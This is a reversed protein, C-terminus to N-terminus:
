EDLDGFEVQGRIFEQRIALLEQEAVKLASRGIRGEGNRVPDIHQVKGDSLTIRYVDFRGNDTPSLIVGIADM